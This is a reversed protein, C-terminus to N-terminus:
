SLVEKKLNLNLCQISVKYGHILAQGIQKIDFAREHEVLIKVEGNCEETLTVNTITKPRNEGNQSLIESCIGKQADEWVLQVSLWDYMLSDWEEIFAQRVIVAVNREPLDYCINVDRNGDYYGKKRWKVKEKAKELFEDKEM